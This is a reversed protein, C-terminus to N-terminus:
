NIFTLSTDKESKCFLIKNSKGDNVLTGYYCSLSSDEITKNNLFVLYTESGYILKANASNSEVADNILNNLLVKIDDDIVGRTKFVTTEYTSEDLDFTSKVSDEYNLDNLNFGITLFFLAAFSYGLANRTFINNLFSFTNQKSTRPLNNDIFEDVVEDAQKSFALYDQSTKFENLTIDLRKMENYFDNAEGNSSLIDEVEQEDSKDLNGDLYDIIKNKLDENIM